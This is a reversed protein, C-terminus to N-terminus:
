GEIAFSYIAEEDIETADVGTMAYEGDIYFAWYTGDTDYDATIGNITKVYLGWESEDGAIIGLEALAEGVTDADTCVTVSTVNGEKDTVQFAFEKEGLGYNKGDHLPVTEGEELEIGDVTLMYVSDPDIETGDLGTMAYEGDIYFAWYTGDTDYDATIGNVTKVYLGWESDEGAVISLEALAEGVTKADTNVTVAATESLCSVVLTFATEGQGYVGGNELLITEENEDWLIESQETSAAFAVSALSCLMALALLLSFLKKM